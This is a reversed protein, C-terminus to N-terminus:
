FLIECEKGESEKGKAEIKLEFKEPSKQQREREERERRSHKTNKQEQRRGDEAKVGDILLCCCLLLPFVSRVKFVKFRNSATEQVTGTAKMAGDKDGGTGATGSHVHIFPQDKDEKWSWESQIM